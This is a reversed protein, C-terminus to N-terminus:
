LKSNLFEGNLLPKIHKIYAEKLAGEKNLGKGKTSDFLDQYVDGDYRGLSSNLLFDPFDWSDCLGVANARIAKLTRAIQEPLFTVSRSTLVGHQLFTGKEQDLFCFFFLDCLKQLVSRLSENPISNLTEMFTQIVVTYCHFSAMHILEKMCFNFADHENMQSLIKQLYQSTSFLVQRACWFLANRQSEPNILDELKKLVFANAQKLYQTSGRISKGNVVKQVNKLLYSATQLLLIVNDGKM